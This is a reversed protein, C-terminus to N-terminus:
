VIVDSAHNDLHGLLVRGREAPRTEAHERKRERWETIELQSRYEGMYIYERASQRRTTDHKEASGRTERACLSQVRFQGIARAGGETAHVSEQAYIYTKRSQCM